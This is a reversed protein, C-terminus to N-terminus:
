RPKLDRVGGAVLGGDITVVSGSMYRSDASALFAVVAAVEDPEGFRGVPIRNIRNKLAEESLPGLAFPTAITGPAVANVAIGLPALEFAMSRTMAEVGAKSVSYVTQNIHAIHAAISAMNVIRGHGQRGMARAVEQAVIFAGTLNVSLVEQWVDDTLDLFPSRRVIGANNVLVTLRGFRAMIADVSRRVQDRDTVDCALGIAQRGDAALAAAANQAGTENVDLIAVAAGERALRSAVAHGIGRAGGTVVAVEDRLRNSLDLSRRTDV